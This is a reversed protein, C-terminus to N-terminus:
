ILSAVGSLRGQRPVEEVLSGGCRSRMLLVVAAVQRELERLHVWGFKIISKPSSAGQLGRYCIWFEAGSSARPSRSRRQVPRQERNQIQGAWERCFRDTNSDISQRNPPMYWGINHERINAVHERFTLDATNLDKSRGSLHNDARGMM